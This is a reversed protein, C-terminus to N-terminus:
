MGKPPFLTELGLHCRLIAITKKNHPNDCPALQVKTTQPAIWPANNIKSRRAFGMLSLSNVLVRMM